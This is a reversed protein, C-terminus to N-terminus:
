WTWPSMQSSFVWNCLFVLKIIILLVNLARDLNIKENPVVGLTFQPNM